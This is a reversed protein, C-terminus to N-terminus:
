SPRHRELSELNCFDRHAAHDIPYDWSGSRLEVRGGFGTKFRHLGHFPHAPDLGPPVAGMDYAACGRQRALRMAKWHMAYPAMCQRKHDASAGYLFHATAGCLAVIAGALVDAGHRALLFLLEADRGPSTAEARDPCIPNAPTSGPPTPALAGMPNLAHVRTRFLALFQEYGCPAFGNRLATQGYLGHFVPLMDPLAPDVRVGKRAALGINYRTKPKMRALIDQETGTLDVVLSSAVTLDRHAKRLNWNRTGMNMRMERIRPEPYANSGHTRMDDAYPSIWPLDYRIFAVSPGLSRALAESLDELFPGYDEEAPAHEPGQPVCAMARGRGMPQLLVLVDGHRETAALDFAKPTYGLRAKVQAWYGTQFLIDTPLLADTRKSSLEFM